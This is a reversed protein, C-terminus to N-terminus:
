MTASLKLLLDLKEFDSQHVVKHKAKFLRTAYLVTSWGILREPQSDTAPALADARKTIRDSFEEIPRDAHGALLGKSLEAAPDARYVKPDFLKPGESTLIVNEYHLDGHIVQETQTTNNLENLLNAVQDLAKAFEDTITVSSAVKLKQEMTKALRLYRFPIQIKARYLARTVQALYVNAEDEQGSARLEGLNPGDLWEVLIARNLPSTKYLTPGLGKPLKRYFSAASREGAANLDRYVKLAAPGWPSSVKFAIRNKEAVLQQELTLGWRKAVQAAKRELKPNASGM